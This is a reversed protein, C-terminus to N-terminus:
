RGHWYGPRRRQHAVAVIWVLDESPRHRYVLTFPFRDLALARTRGRVVPWREPAEAIRRTKDLVEDLFRVAAMPNREEYWAYSRDFEAQASRHFRVKTM